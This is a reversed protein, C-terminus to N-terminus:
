LSAPTVADCRHFRHPRTEPPSTDLAHWLVDSEFCVARPMEQGSQAATPALLAMVTDVMSAMATDVTPVTAM